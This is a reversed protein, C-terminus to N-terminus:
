NARRSPLAVKLGAGAVTAGVQTCHFTVSAGQAIQQGGSIFASSFVAATAATASSAETADITPLTAFISTGGVRIDFQAAAGTAATNLMWIPLATLVRAEPWYPITLLTAQTLNAAEATLPIVATSLARLTTGDIVLASDTALHTLKGASDDWFLLRDAGPDDARLEQGSLDLVDAVSVALTVADHGGVDAPSLTHNKWLGDSALRLVQGTTAGSILVDHLEEIELGNDIKVYLIGATGAAQKVCYGLVVGHAPQTPRTTTGEGATESLWVIQGETLTATSIGDLLGVAVVYGNANHAIAEQALGLTQAATAEASADALAVTLTTGSSGTQYVAAGKPIPVGSTNRVYKRVVTASDVTISDLKTKDAASQLGADTTTALPLVVDAGTSSALTRTAATYTLDTVPAKDAIAQVTTKRSNGSQVVYVSETGALPTTAATLQSLKQDAM